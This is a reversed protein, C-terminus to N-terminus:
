FNSCTLLSKKGSEDWQAGPPLPIERDGCFVMGAYPFDEIIFIQHELWHFYTSPFRVIEGGESHCAMLAVWRVM